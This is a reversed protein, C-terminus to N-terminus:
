QGGSSTERSPGVVGGFRGGESQSLSSKHWVEEWIFVAIIEDRNDKRSVTGIFISCVSNWVTPMYFESAPSNGLLFCVANLVCRFNSILVFM